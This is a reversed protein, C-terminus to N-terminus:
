EPEIEKVGKWRSQYLPAFYVRSGQSDAFRMTIKACRRPNHLETVWDAKNSFVPADIREILALVMQRLQAPTPNEAETLQDVIRLIAPQDIKRELNLLASREAKLAQYRRDFDAEEIRGKDLREQWRDIEDNIQKVTRTPRTAPKKEAQVAEPPPPNQLWRRLARMAADELSDANVERGAPHATVSDHRMTSCGYARPQCRDGAGKHISRLPAGCSCYVLSSLLWSSDAEVHRTFRKGNLQPVNRSQYLSQVHRIRSICDADFLPPFIFVEVRKPDEKDLGDRLTWYGEMVRIYKDSLYEQVRTGAWLRGRPTRHGEANIMRAIKEYGAGQERLDVMRGVTARMKELIVYVGDENRAIWGPLEGGFIKGTRAMQTITDKRYESLEGSQYQAVSLMLNIVLEDSVSEGELHEKLFAIRVGTKRFEHLIEQSDRMIRGVRSVRYFLLIDYAGKQAAELHNKLGPRKRWSRNYTPQDIDHNDLSAQEDFKWGRKKCYEAAEQVQIRPSIVGRKALADEYEASDTLGLAEVERKIKTEIKSVRVAIRALPQDATDNNPKQNSNM